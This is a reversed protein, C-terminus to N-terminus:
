SKNSESKATSNQKGLREMVWIRTLTSVGIGKGLAEQRLREWDEASVRVPIIKQLHSKGVPKGV